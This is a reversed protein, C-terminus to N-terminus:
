SGKHKQRNMGIALSRRVARSGAAKDLQRREKFFSKLLETCEAALVGGTTQVQHNQPLSFIDTLSGCAGAKPDRAGFVVEGIRAQVIAGACMICPELTVYLTCNELRWSGLRRCAQRLATMEAHLTVDQRSERQNCGRGVIRGGCVIVAGVPTEDLLRAKEAQRLAARMWYEHGRIIM